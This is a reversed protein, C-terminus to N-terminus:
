HVASPARITDSGLVLQASDEVLTAQRTFGDICKPAHCRKERTSASSPRSFRQGLEFISRQQYAARQTAVAFISGGKSISAIYFIGSQNPSKKARHKAGARVITPSAQSQSLPSDALRTTVSVGGDCASLEVPTVTDALAISIWAWRGTHLRPAGRQFRRGGRAFALPLLHEDSSPQARYPRRAAITLALRRRKAPRWNAVVWNRFELAWPSRRRGPAGIWNAWTPPSASGIM